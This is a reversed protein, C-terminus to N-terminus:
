ERVRKELRKGYNETVEVQLLGRLPCKSLSIRKHDRGGCKCEESSNRTPKNNNDHTGRARKKKPEESEETEDNEEHMHLGSSYERGDLVDEELKKTGEVMNNNRQKIRQRLKVKQLGFYIRGYEKKRWMLRLGSWTLKTHQFKMAHGLTNIGIAINIRSILAMSRCYTKEKPCDRMISRNMAENKQSHMQHRCECLNEENSLREIIESCFLYLKDNKVKCRYKNLEKLEKEGKERHKCWTGCTTHDNFQHLVPSKASKKFEMFSLRRGSFLWWAYSRKLRLCDVVNLVSRKKGEAKLAGLTNEL